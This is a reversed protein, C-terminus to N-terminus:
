IDETKMTCNLESCDSLQPQKYFQQVMFLFVKHSYYEMNTRCLMLWNENFPLSTDLIFVATFILQLDNASYM